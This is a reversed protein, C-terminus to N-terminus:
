LRKKLINKLINKNFDRKSHFFELESRTLSNKESIMVATCILDASQLLIYDTPMAKRFEVNSFLQNFVKTLIKALESQGYDYYVVIKDFRIFYDYNDKLESRIKKTLVESYVYTEQNSQHRKDMTISLYNIPAHRTFHELLNFLSRREERSFNTYPKERRILPGVHIYHNDYGRYNLSTKISSVMDSIDNNQEHLVMVVHYFPDRPDYKGFDGSEDILISLINDAKM